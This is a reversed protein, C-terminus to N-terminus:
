LLVVDMRIFNKFGRMDEANLERMLGKYAGLQDRRQLWKRIWVSRRHRRALQEQEQRRRHCAIQMATARQQEALQLQWAMLHMRRAHYQLVDM